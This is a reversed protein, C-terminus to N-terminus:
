EIRMLHPGHTWLIYTEYQHHPYIKQLATKYRNLQAIYLLDVDEVCHPPNPTTKFDLIQIVTDTICIRDIRGLALGGSMDDVAIEVEAQSQPGFLNAYLPMEIIAITKKLDKLSEASALGQQRMFRLGVNLRDKEPFDPLIEFLTHIMIGRKAAATLPASSVCERASEASHTTALVTTSELPMIAWEPLTNNGDFSLLAATPAITSIGTRYRLQGDSLLEADLSELAERVTGYWTNSLDEPQKRTCWGCIYLRDQPRTLAVYLLRRDEDAAKQAQVAKLSKTFPTDEDSSPRIFVFDVADGEACPQWLLFDRQNQGDLHEPLIVIPAQLGKSGHITMIRVENRQSDASDRKIELDQQQLFHIFGQLTPPNLREFVLAQNLFEDLPDEAELGLRGIFLSRGKQVSLIFSYFDYPRMYDAKSLLPSLFAYAKQFAPNEHQRHILSVWLHGTRGKIPHVKIPDSVKTTIASPNEAINEQCLSFLDNESFGILPSKLVCALSYDDEPLLLFQGLAMLDMVAIHQTLQLRDTGAVPINEAKLARILDEIFASRKRILILIDKPQIVARTSPLIQKEDFWGRIKQAILRATKQAPTISKDLQTPIVWSEPTATKEIGDKFIVPWLEVEGYDHSRFPHHILPSHDFCVGQRHHPNQFVKDVVHLIEPTSRFSMDLGIDRWKQQIRRCDQAFVGKLRLFEEPRAGQFSYISQKADGVAFITRYPKDPTFFDATLARIVQWQRPNTDQAEDILLHDIGGDLKFLVWSAIGPQGLLQQTYDILDDYDLASQHVKLEQYKELIAATLTLMATTKQAICAQKILQQLAYINEAEPMYKIQPRRSIEDAITLYLRKYDPYLTARMQPESLWTALIKHSPSLDDPSLDDQGALLALLAQQHEHCLTYHHTLIFTILDKANLDITDPLDFVGKLYTERAHRTPYKQLVQEFSRRQHNMDYLIKNFTQDAMHETLVALAEQIESKKTPDVDGKLPRNSLVYDRAQHLLDNAQIDDLITFHPSVNAELPFRALISQCFGHITLIKMGGPTDLVMTFLLRARKLTDACAIKGQLTNLENQLLDDPLLAWRSLRAYLRNAMEAAAAKTFTLCVIRDPNFGALLLNLIRDTLVKTKGSGASAAVWASVTADSALRQNTQSQTMPHDLSNVRDLSQMAM